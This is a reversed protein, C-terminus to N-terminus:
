KIRGKLELNAYTFCKLALDNDKGGSCRGSMIGEFRDLGFPPVELVISGGLFQDGVHTLTRPGFGSIM